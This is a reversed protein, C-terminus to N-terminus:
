LREAVRFRRLVAELQESKKLAGELDPLCEPNTGPQARLAEVVRGVADRSHARHARRQKPSPAPTPADTM